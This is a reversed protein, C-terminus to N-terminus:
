TKGRKRRGSAIARRKPRQVPAKYDTSGDSDSLTVDQTDMKEFSTELDKYNVVPKNRSSQLYLPVTTPGCTRLKSPDMVGLMFPM